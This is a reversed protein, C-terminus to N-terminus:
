SVLYSFAAATDTLASNKRSSNKISPFKNLKQVYNQISKLFAETSYWRRHFVM